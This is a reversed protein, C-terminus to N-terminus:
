PRQARLYAIVAKRDAAAPMGEFAMTTGPALATPKELWLGLKDEDWTFSLSALSKSYVYGEVAAVKRGVVGKLTPGNKVIASGSVDHCSACRLFLRQGRAVLAPDDAPQARADVAALATVLLSASAASSALASLGAFRRLHTKM